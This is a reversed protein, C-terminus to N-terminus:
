VCPWYVRETGLRKLREWLNKGCGTVLWDPSIEAVSWPQKQNCRSVITQAQEAELFRRGDM